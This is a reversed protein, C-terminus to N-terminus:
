YLRAGSELDYRRMTELLVDNSEDLEWGKRWVRVADDELGLEWLVEGYHALIEVHPERGMLRLSRELQERAGELDGLRYLVWGYSDVIAASEPDIALADKILRRAEELRVGHDAFMYGLANYGDASDPRLRIYARLDAEAEKIRDLREAYLSRVYLLDPLREAQELGALFDYAQADGKQRRLQRAYGQALATLNERPAHVLAEEYLALIKADEGLTEYSVARMSVADEWSPSHEPVGALAELAREPDGHSFFFVGARLQAYHRRGEEIGYDAARPLLAGRVEHQHAWDEYVAVATPVDVEAAAALAELAAVAGLDDGAVVRHRLRAMLIELDGPWRALGMDIQAGAEAVGGNRLHLLAMYAHYGATKPLKAYASQMALVQDGRAVSALEFVQGPDGTARALRTLLPIARVLGPHGESIHIRALMSLAEADGGHAIWDRSIKMALALDKLGIAGHTADRLLGPDELQRGLSYLRMVGARADAGTGIELYGRLVNEFQRESYGAAAGAPPAALAALLPLVVRLRMM